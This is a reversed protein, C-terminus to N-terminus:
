ARVVMTDAIDDHLCYRSERFIMLADVLAILGGILPISVLLQILAYRLWFLRNFDAPSGDKRVMKIGLLMKGITQGRTYILYGHLVAFVLLGLVYGMVTSIVSFGVSSTMQEVSDPNDIGGAAAFLGVGLFIMVPFLIIAALFGDLIAAVLRTGRRALEATAPPGAVPAESVDPSAYPNEPANM